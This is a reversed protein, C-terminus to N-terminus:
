NNAPEAPARLWQNVCPDTLKNEFITEGGTQVRHVRMLQWAIKVPIDLANPQGSLRRVLNRWPSNEWVDLGLGYHKSFFAVLSAASSYFSKGDRGHGADMFQEFMYQRIEELVTGVTQQLLPRLRKFYKAKKRENGAEFEPSIIWFFVLLDGLLNPKNAIFQRVEANELDLLFPSKTMQLWMLRRLTLPACDIGAVREAVGLFPVDRIERERRANEAYGPCDRQLDVAPM